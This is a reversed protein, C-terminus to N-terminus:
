FVRSTSGCSQGAWTFNMGRIAAQAVKEIDTDPWALLANKGGLELSVPTVNASAARMVARGTPVSGVLGVKAVSPHGVLFAGIEAPGNLINFVGDPFLGDWLEALRLCSLPAQEPTKVILANGAALPAAARMAAFMLPHN